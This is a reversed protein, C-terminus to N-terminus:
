LGRLNILPNHGLYRLYSINVLFITMDPTMMSISYRVTEDSNEILVM